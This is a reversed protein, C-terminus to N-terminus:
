ENELVGVIDDCRVVRYEQGDKGTYLLGAYKTILVKDGPNPWYDLQQDATEGNEMVVAELQAMEKKDAYEEPLIIGGKTVKELRQVKVVIRDGLPRIGSTNETM